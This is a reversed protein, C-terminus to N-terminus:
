RFEAVIDDEAFAETITMQREESENENDDIAEDGRTIMDPLETQLHKPKMAIFKNPDINDVPPEQEEEQLRSEPVIKNLNRYSSEDEQFRDHPQEDLEEDLDARVDVQKLKLSPGEDGSESNTDEAKAKDKVKLELKLKKLKKGVKEKLKEEMDDFLEGIKVKNKSTSNDISNIKNKNNNKGGSGNCNGMKGMETEMPTVTWSSTAIVTSHSELPKSIYSDSSFSYETEKKKKKKKKNNVQEATNNPKNLSIKKRRPWIKTNSNIEESIDKQKRFFLIKRKPWMETSVDVQEEMNNQKNQSLIKWKPVIEASDNEQEATNNQKNPLQVESSSNLEGTTSKLKNPSLKKQGPLMEISNNIQEAANNGKEQSVQKRELQIETSNIIADSCRQRERVPIEIDICGDKNNEGRLNVSALSHSQIHYEGEENSKNNQDEINKNAPATGHNETYGKGVESAVERGDVGKNHAVNSANGTEESSMKNREEWYKRYESLFQDVESTAKPTIWPNDTNSPTVKESNDEEEEDDSSNEVQVKQTL